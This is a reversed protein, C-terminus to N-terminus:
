IYAMDSLSHVYKLRKQQSFLCLWFFLNEGCSLLVALTKNIVCIATPPVVGWTHTTVNEPCKFVLHVSPSCCSFSLGFDPLISFSPTFTKQTATERPSFQVWRVRGVKEISIQLINESNKPCQVNQENISQLWYCCVSVPVHYMLWAMLCINICLVCSLLHHKWCFKPFLFLYYFITVAHMDGDCNLLLFLATTSNLSFSFKWSIICFM